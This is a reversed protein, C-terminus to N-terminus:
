GFMEDLVKQDSLVPGRRREGGSPYEEENILDSYRSRLENLSNIPDRKGNDYLRTAKTIAHADSNKLLRRYLDRPCEGKGPSTEIGGNYIIKKLSSELYYSYISKLTLFKRIAKKSIEIKNFGPVAKLALVIYTIGEKRFPRSLEMLSHRTNYSSSGKRYYGVVSTGKSVSKSDNLIKLFVHAHTLSEVEFFLLADTEAALERKTERSAASNAESIYGRCATLRSVMMERCKRITGINGGRKRTVHSVHIFRLITCAESSLYPDGGFAISNRSELNVFGIDRAKVEKLRVDVSADPIGIDKVAFRKHVSKTGTNVPGYKNEILDGRAYKGRALLLDMDGDDSWAVLISVDLKLSRSGADVIVREEKILKVTGSRGMRSMIRPIDDENIKYVEGMFKFCILDIARSETFESPVIWPNRMDDRITFYKSASCGDGVKECGELLDSNIGGERMSGYVFLLM